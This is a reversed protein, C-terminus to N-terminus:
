DQLSLKVLRNFVNVAVCREALVEATVIQLDIFSLTLLFVKPLILWCSLFLIGVMRDDIIQESLGQWLWLFM